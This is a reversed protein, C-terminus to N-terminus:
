SRVKWHVEFDINRARAGEVLRRYPYRESHGSRRARGVEYAIIDAAQLPRVDSAFKYTDSKVRGAAEGYDYLWRLKKIQTESLHRQKAFVLNLRQGSKAWGQQIAHGVANHKEKDRSGDALKFDFPPKWADFDTMHFCSLGEDDLAGKWAKDFDRWRDLPGICGGMTMNILNGARYYEGSEDYYAWIVVLEM